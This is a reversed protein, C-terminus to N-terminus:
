FLTNHKKILRNLYIRNPHLAKALSLSCPLPTNDIYNAIIESCIPATFIGKAGHAVNIFLGPYYPCPDELYFKADKALKKYVERFKVYDAVPGVLPMYDFTSARINAQGSIQEL